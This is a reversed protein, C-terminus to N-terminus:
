PAGLAARLRDLESQTGIAPRHEPHNLYHHIAAALFAPQVAPNNPLPIYAPRAKARALGTTSVLDPRGIGISNTKWASQRLRPGASIAEWPVTRTGYLGVVVLGHPTLTVRGGGRILEAIPISLVVAALGILVLVAGSIWVDEPQRDVDTLPRLQNGTITALLALVGALRAGTMRYHPPVLFTGEGIYFTAPLASRGGTWLAMTFLVAVAGLPLVLAFILTYWRQDNDFRWGGGALWAAALVATGAPLLWGIARNPAAPTLTTM